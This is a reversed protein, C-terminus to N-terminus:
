NSTNEEGYHDEILDSEISNEFEETDMSEVVDAAPLQGAVAEGPSGEKNNTQTDQIVEDMATERIPSRTPSRRFVGTRGRSPPALCRSGGLRHNYPKGAEECLVYKVKGKCASAKHGKQGCNYCLDSRDNEDDCRAKTHGIKLCRFCQMRRVPLPDIRVSAWGIKIRKKEGLLNAKVLLCKIWVYGIGRPSTKITGVNIDDSACGTEKSITQKVEDRTVSIDLGVLTLEAMQRPRHVRVSQYKSLATRLAETLKEAIEKNREGRIELLIGGTASRKTTIFNVEEENLKVTQRAWALVESYSLNKDGTIIVVASTKLPKRARPKEKNKGKDNKGGIEERNNKRKQKRGM